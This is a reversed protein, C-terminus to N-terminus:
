ITTTIKPIHNNIFEHHQYTLNM